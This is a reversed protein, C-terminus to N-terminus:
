FNSFIIKPTFTPNPLKTLAGKERNLTEKDRLSNCVQIALEDEPVYFDVEFNDNYFYVRENESDHGYIRFLQLAVM